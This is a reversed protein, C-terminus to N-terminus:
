GKGVGRENEEKIQASFVMSKHNNETEGVCCGSKGGVTFFGGVVPSKFLASFSRTVTMVSWSISCLSKFSFSISHASFKSFFTINSFAYIFPVPILYSMIRKKLYFLLFFNRSRKVREEKLPSGWVVKIKDGRRLDIIDNLQLRRSFRQEAKM